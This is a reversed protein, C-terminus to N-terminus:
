FWAIICAQLCACPQRALWSATFCAHSSSSKRSLRALASSRDSRYVRALLNVICTEERKIAVRDSDVATLARSVVTLEVLIILGYFRFFSHQDSIPVLKPISVPTKSVRCAEEKGDVRSDNPLVEGGPPVFRIVVSSGLAVGRLDM